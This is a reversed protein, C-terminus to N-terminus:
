NFRKSKCKFYCIKKKRAEIAYEQHKRSLNSRWLSEDKTHKEQTRADVKKGECNICNCKYLYKRPPRTLDCLNKEKEHKEQISSKILDAVCLRKEKKHKEQTRPKILDAVAEIKRKQKAIM